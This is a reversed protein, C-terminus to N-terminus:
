TSVEGGEDRRLLLSLKLIRDRQIELEPIRVRWTRLCIAKQYIAGRRRRSIDLYRRFPDRNWKRDGKSIKEDRFGWDDDGM